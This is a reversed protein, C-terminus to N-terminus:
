KIVSRGERPNNPGLRNRLAAVDCSTPLDTLLELFQEHLLGNTVLASGDGDLVPEGHLDTVTGGAETIIITLPALDEYSMPFGAIVCADADGDAVEVLRSDTRLYVRRHLTFLLQEPWTGPNVMQTRAGDVNARGSVQARIPNTQDRSAPSLDDLQVWCGRGRGAYLLTGTISDNVVAIAPGDEDVYTITNTFGPMRRAFDFTGDIPDLVWHRGSSGATPAREEGYIGDQPVQRSLEGRLLDEVRLDVQTVETGDDKLAAGRHLSPGPAFFARRSLEGAQRAMGVAFQILEPEIPAGEHM